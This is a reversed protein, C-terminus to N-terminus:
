SAHRRSRGNAEGFDREQERRAANCGTPKEADVYKKAILRYQEHLDSLNDNM